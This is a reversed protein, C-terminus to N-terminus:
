AAPDTTGGISDLVTITGQTQANVSVNFAALVLLATLLTLAFIKSKKFMM